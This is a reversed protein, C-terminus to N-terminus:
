ASAKIDACLAAFLEDVICLAEPKPEGKAFSYKAALAAKDLELAVKIATVAAAHDLEGGDALGQNGRIGDVLKMIADYLNPLLDFIFKMFEMLGAGGAFSQGAKVFKMIADFVTPLVMLLFKIFTMWAAM